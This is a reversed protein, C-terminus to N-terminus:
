GKIFGTIEAPSVPRGFLYGQAYDCRLECLFTAIDETEVGEAVVKLGLAHALAIVAEVIKRDEVHSLCQRIFSKDIKLEDIPLRQLRSLSSFGTGFDDLSVRAGRLCLASLTTALSRPDTLMDNETIELILGDLNTNFRNALREMEIGLNPDLLTPIPMNVSVAVNMGGKAWLARNQFVSRLVFYTLETMGDADLHSLFRSPPLLGHMPHQWRVLAEASIMQRNPLDVIPQYRVVIQEGRIADIVESRSPTYSNAPTANLAELLPRVTFPKKICGVIQLQRDEALRTVSSLLRESHGSILLIKGRYDQTALENLISVGDFDPISLDIICIDPTERTVAQEFERGSSFTVTTFGAKQLGRSVVDLVGAEDDVIYVTRRGAPQPEAPASATETESSTQPLGM